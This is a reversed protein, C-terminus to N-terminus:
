KRKESGDLWRRRARMRGSEFGLNFGLQEGYRFAVLPRFAGVLSSEVLPRPDGPFVDM